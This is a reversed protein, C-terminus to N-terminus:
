AAELDVLRAALLYDGCHLRGVGDRRQWLWQVGLVAAYVGRWDEAVAAQLFSLPMLDNDAHVALAHVDVIYAHAM